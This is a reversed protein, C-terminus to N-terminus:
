PRTLHILRAYGEYLPPTVIQRAGSPLSESHDLHVHGCFIGLIRPESCVFECFRRPMPKDRLPAHWVRRRPVPWSPDNCLIPDGWKAITKERLKTQSIPVHQFLLAPVRQRALAAKLRRFQTATFQYHSNDVVVIQLGRLAIRQFMPDRGTESIFRRGVRKRQTPFREQSGYEPWDWDHNGFTIGFPVFLLSLRHFLAALNAQTPSVMLDGTFAVFDPKLKPLDALLQDFYALAQGGQQKNTLALYKRQLPDREDCECLHVDTVHLVRLSRELGPVPLTTKLIKLQM